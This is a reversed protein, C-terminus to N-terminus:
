PMGTSSRPAAAELRIAIAALLMVPASLPLLVAATMIDIARKAAYHWTPPKNAEVYLM